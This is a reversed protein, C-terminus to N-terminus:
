THSHGQQTTVRTVVNWTVMSRKVTIQTSGALSLPTIPILLLIKWTSRKTELRPTQPDMQEEKDTVDTLARPDLQVEDIDFNNPLSWDHESFRCDHYREWNYIHGHTADRILIDGVEDEVHLPSTSIPDHMPFARTSMHLHPLAEETDSTWPNLTLM